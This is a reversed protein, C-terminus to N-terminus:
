LSIPNISYSFTEDNEMEYSPNEDKTHLRNETKIM